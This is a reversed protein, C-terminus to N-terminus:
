KGSLEKLDSLVEQAHVAPKVKKYHKALEGQPNILFSERSVGMFTKGFMSKEKLVGFQEIVARETDALLVFDLNHKDAFKKHSKVSDASIGIVQMNQTDFDPLTEQLACAEKTCGPTDDKPYFYVLVWKGLFESLSRDNGFQDQLTFDAVKKHLELM